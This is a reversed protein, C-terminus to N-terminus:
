ETETIGALTFDPSQVQNSLNLERDYIRVDIRFTDNRMALEFGVSVMSYDMSGALPKENRLNEEDFIPFRGDWDFGCNGFVQSWDFFTYEGNRKRYFDIFINKNAENPQIFLTDFSGDTYEIIEYSECDYPPRIDTDSLFVLEGENVPILMYFPPIPEIDGNLTVVNGASDVVFNFPQYPYSDDEDELGLDGNGDQFGITLILSDVDTDGPKFVINEFEIEPNEPFEPPPYCSVVGVTIVLFFILSKFNMLM